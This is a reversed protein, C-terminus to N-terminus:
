WSFLKEIIEAVAEASVQDFLDDFFAADVRHAHAIVTGGLLGYIV